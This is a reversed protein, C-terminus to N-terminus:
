IKKNNIMMRNIGVEAMTSQHGPVCLLIKAEEVLDSTESGDKQDCWFCDRPGYLLVYEECDKAQCSTLQM